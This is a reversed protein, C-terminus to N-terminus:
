PSVMIFFSRGSGISNTYGFTGNNGFNNTYVPTWNALVTTLNTSTLIRYQVGAPCNSGSFVLSGSSTTLHIDPKPSTVIFNAVAYTASGGPGYVTLTVTYSAAATYTNTVNGATTNTIIVGNGFNWVWNTASGTTSDSFVVTLPGFGNTASATVSSVSPPTVAVARTFSLAGNTAMTFYGLFDATGNTTLGTIPDTYETGRGTPVNAYFDSVVPSSFTNSTVNEVSYDIATGGFDGISSTVPDAIHYSLNDDDAADATPELILLSFNDTNTDGQQAPSALTASLANAGSSVGLIEGELQGEVSSSIRAPAATQAGPSTRPLTYFCTKEPWVGLSNTLSNLSSGFASWQLNGLGDPCMTALQNTYFGINTTTGVAMALYNSLSGLYAVMEYAEQHSGTKRFGADLDGNQTDTFYQQANALFPLSLSIAVVSKLFCRSLSFNRM